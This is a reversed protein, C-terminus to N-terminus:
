AILNKIKGIFRSVVNNPFREEVKGMITLVINAPFLNEHLLILFALKGQVIGILFYLVHLFGVARLMICQTCIWVVLAWGFVSSIYGYYRSNFGMMLASFINGLGIVCFLLIGPILFSDFPSNKLIDVPIGMPGQPNSWAAWGGFLAGIGVFLHLYFIWCNISSLFSKETRTTYKKLSYKM